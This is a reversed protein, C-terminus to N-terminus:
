FESAVESGERSFAYAWVLFDVNESVFRVAGDGMAAFAGGKHTSSVNRPGTGAAVWDTWNIEDRQPDNIRRMLVYGKPNATSVQAAVVRVGANVQCYATGELWRRCREANVSAGAGGTRQFDKGRFVEGVVVTNSSGDLQDRIRTGSQCLVGVDKAPSPNGREAHTADARARVAAAYNTGASVPSGAGGGNLTCIEPTPDSPCLYLPIITTNVVGTQGPLAYPGLCSYLGGEFRFLNYLPAQDIYPLIMVRWSLGSAVQWANV